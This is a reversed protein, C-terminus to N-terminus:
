VLLLKGLDIKKMKLLEQMAREGKEPHNMLSDIISPVIQWSVGYPDKLWGCMSEQGGNSILNTWYYDIEEQNECYVVFSVAENFPFPAKSSDMAVFLQDQLYFRGHKIYGAIDPEGKEYRQIDIIKSNKFVSIYFNIAEEAKGSNNQTFMLAPVIKEDGITEGSMIQWNVGFKDQCWGYKESWPYKDLPMLVAGDESLLKWKAETEEPSACNVFFSVSPNMKFKPGGNLGMFKKGNLEFIVVVSSDHQISSNEFVSCYFTASEKAKGDFWLCPFIKNKM